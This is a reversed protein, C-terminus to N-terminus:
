KKNITIQQEKEEDEVRSSIPAMSEIDTEDVIVTYRGDNSVYSDRQNSPRLPNNLEDFSEDNHLLAEEFSITESVCVIKEKNDILYQLHKKAEVHDSVAGKLLSSLEKSEKLRTEKRYLEDIQKKNNELNTKENEIDVLLKSLMTQTMDSFMENNSVSQNVKKQAKAQERKDVGFIGRFFGSVGKNEKVKAESTVADAKKSMMKTMTEVRTNLTQIRQEIEIKEDELKSIQSPILAIEKDIKANREDEKKQIEERTKGLDDVRKRAAKLKDNYDNEKEQLIVQKRLEAERIRKQEEEKEKEIRIEEEIQKQLEEQKRNEEEQLAQGIITNSDLEEKVAPAEIVEIEPLNKGPISIKLTARIHEVVNSKPEMTYFIRNAGVDKPNSSDKAFASLHTDLFTDAVRREPAIGLSKKMEALANKQRLYSVLRIFKSLRSAYRTEIRRELAYAHEMYMCKTFGQTFEDDLCIGNQVAIRYRAYDKAYIKANAAIQSSTLGREAYSNYIDDAKKTLTDIGKEKYYKKVNDIAAARLWESVEPKAVNMYVGNIIAAARARVKDNPNQFGELNVTCYLAAMTEDVKRSVSNLDIAEHDEIGRKIAAEFAHAQLQRYIPEAQICFALNDSNDKTDKHVENMADILTQATLDKEDIGLKKFFAYFHEYNEHPPNENPVVKIADRFTDYVSYDGIKPNMRKEFIKRANESDIQSQKERQIKELRKREFEENVKAIRKEEERDKAKKIEIYPERNKEKDWKPDTYNDKNFVKKAIDLHINNFPNDIWQKSEYDLEFTHLSKNLHIEEALEKARKEADDSNFQRLRIWYDCHKFFNTYTHLALMCIEFIERSVITYDTAQEGNRELYKEGLEKDRAVGAFHFRITAVADKLREFNEDTIWQDLPLDTKSFDDTQYASIDAWTESLSNFLEETVTNDYMYKLKQSYRQNFYHIRAKLAYYTEQNLVKPPM